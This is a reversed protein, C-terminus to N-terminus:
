IVESMETWMLPESTPLLQLPSYNSTQTTKYYSEIQINKISIVKAYWSRFHPVFIYKRRLM